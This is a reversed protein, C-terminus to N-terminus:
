FNKNAFNPIPYLIIINENHLAYRLGILLTIVKYHVVGFLIVQALGQFGPM